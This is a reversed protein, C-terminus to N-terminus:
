PPRARIRASCARPPPGSSAGCRRSSVEVAQAHRGGIGDRGLTQEALAADSRARGRRRSPRPWAAARAPRRSRRGRRSRSSSPRVAQTRDPASSARLCHERRGRAISPTARGRRAGRASARRRRPGAAASRSASRAPRRGERRDSGDQGPHARRRHECSASSPCIATWAATSASSIQDSSGRELRRTCTMRTRGTSPEHWSPRRGRRPARRADGITASTRSARRRRAARTSRAARRAAGSRRARVGASISAASTSSSTRAASRRM